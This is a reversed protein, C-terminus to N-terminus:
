EGIAALWDDSSGARDANAMRRAIREMRGSLIQRTSSDPAGLYEDVRLSQGTSDNIPRLVLQSGREFFHHLMEKYNFEGSYNRIGEVALSEIHYGSPRM